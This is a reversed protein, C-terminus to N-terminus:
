LIKRLFLFGCVPVTFKTVAERALCVQGEEATEGMCNVTEYAYRIEQLTNEIYVECSGSGNAITLKGYAEELKFLPNTFVTTIAEGDAKACVQSYAGEVGRLILEGDLLVSRNDDIFKLYYKLMKEHEAPLKDFLVSIQPVCYLVNVMQDAATEVPADYNWLIMDSHVATGNDTLLRLDLSSVRNITAGGVCDGVRLINGYKQMIPGIYSQRFELMIEPNIARLTSTIESLLKEVAAELSVCDMDEYNAPSEERLSFCDIFDLKLGDLEWERVAKEYLEVLYARTKAFRPDLVGTKGGDRTWLYMGEFQEWAKTHVGVFPVSYWLMFKMGLTHIKDVLARMDPIKTPTVEWDGCFSYGGTANEATQWGDDLIVTDLGYEKAMECQRVVADTTIEKQFNYWTSFMARKADAPVHAPPYGTESWWRRTEKISDYFPCKRSDIRLTTEYHQMVDMRNIFLELVCYCDGKRESIGASLMLPTAADAVAVTCSNTGDRGVLSLVPAGAATRSYTRMPRWDAYLGRDFRNGPTWTSLMDVFPELWRIRIKDPVVPEAFDVMIRYHQLDGDIEEPAIKVTAGQDFTEIEFERIRGMIKKM